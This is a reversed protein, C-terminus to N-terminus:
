EVLHDYSTTNRAQKPSPLSVLSKQELASDAPKRLAGRDDGYLVGTDERSKSFLAFFSLEVNRTPSSGVAKLNSTQRAVMASASGNTRQSLGYDLRLM